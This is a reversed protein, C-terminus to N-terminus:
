LGTQNSINIFLYKVHFSQLEWSSLIILNDALCTVHSESSLFSIGAFELFRSDTTSLWVWLIIELNEHNLFDALSIILKFNDACWSGKDEILLALLNSESSTFLGFILEESDNLCRNLCEM